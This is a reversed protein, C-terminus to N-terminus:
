RYSLKMAERVRAMTEQAVLRAKRSGDAIIDRITDPRALLEARRQRMPELTLELAAVLKRKVEVDGVRGARYRAKLDEVEAADPNFADHYTFVPNGEVNGPIDARIRAPDTYMSMVKTRVAAVDDALDIANGYSKSMKRNDLGPLRPFRTLLPQPEVFVEGYFAHFRRVVERSLELHPVQDEGVPVYHANYMIIDATQLLPYGLFGYTSLDKESLQDRLEKYTPVRELWPVPIIMSLLLHLEAHEPVLSQVFITSQAPDLGAAIWDAVNSYAFGAIDETAGYESTLAHWDAVFYSCDYRDQMPVWNRLAGVLHGLHLRGTPRMGSVVRPKVASV